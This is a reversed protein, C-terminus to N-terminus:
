IRGLERLTDLDERFEEVGYHIPIKRAGLLQQFARQSLGALRSAQGITLREQGFLTLALEQAAEPGSMHAAEAVDDPITLM